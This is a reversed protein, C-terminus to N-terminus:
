AAAIGSGSMDRLPRGEAADSLSRVDVALIDDMDVATATEMRLAETAGAGSCIAPVRPNSDNVVAQVLGTGQWSEIILQERTSAFVIACPHAPICANLPPLQCPFAISRCKAHKWSRPGLLSSSAGHLQLQPSTERQTIVM